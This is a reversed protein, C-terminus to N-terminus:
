GTVKILLKGKGALIIKSLIELGNWKQILMFFFFPNVQDQSFRIPVIDRKSM